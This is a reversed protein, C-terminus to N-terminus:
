NCSSTSRACQAGPSKLICLLSVLSHSLLSFVCDLIVSSRDKLANALELAAGIDEVGGREAAWRGGLPCCDSPPVMTSRSM